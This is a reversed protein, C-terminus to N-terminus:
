EAAKEKSVKVELFKIIWFKLFVIFVFYKHLIEICTRYVHSVSNYFTTVPNKTVSMNNNM